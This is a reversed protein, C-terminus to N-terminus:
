QVASGGGGLGSEGIQGCRRREGHLVEAIRKIVGARLLDADDRRAAVARAVSGEMFFITRASKAENRAGNASYACVACSTFSMLVIRFAAGEDDPGLSKM